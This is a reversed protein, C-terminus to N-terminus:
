NANSNHSAGVVGITTAAATTTTKLTTTPQKITTKTILTTTENDFDDMGLYFSHAHKIKAQIYYYSKVM